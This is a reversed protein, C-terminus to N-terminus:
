LTCEMNLMSENLRSISINSEMHSPLARKKNLVDLMNFFRIGKDTMRYRVGYFVSMIRREKPSDSAVMGADHLMIFTFRSKEGTFESEVSIEVYIDRSRLLVEGINKIIEIELKM